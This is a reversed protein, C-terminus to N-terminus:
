VKSVRSPFLINAFVLRSRSLVTSRVSNLSLRPSNNGDDEENESIIDEDEDWDTDVIETAISSPRPEPGKLGFFSDHPRAKQQMERRSQESVMFSQTYKLVNMDTLNLADSTPGNGHESVM